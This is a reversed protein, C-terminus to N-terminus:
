VQIQLDPWLLIHTLHFHGRLPFFDILTPPSNRWQPETPHKQFEMYFQSQFYLKQITHAAYYQAWLPSCHNLLGTLLKTLSRRQETHCCATVWMHKPSSLSATSLQHVSACLPSHYSSSSPRERIVVKGLREQVALQSLTLLCAKHFIFGSPFKWELSPIKKHQLEATGQWKTTFMAFVHTM